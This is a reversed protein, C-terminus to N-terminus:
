RTKWVPTAVKGVYGLTQDQKVSGVLHTIFIDQKVNLALLERQASKVINLVLSVLKLQEQERFMNM